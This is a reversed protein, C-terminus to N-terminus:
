NNNHAKVVVYFGLAFGSAFLDIASSGLTLMGLTFM